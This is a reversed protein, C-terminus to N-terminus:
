CPNDKPYPSSWDFHNYFWRFRREETETMQAEIDGLISEVIEQKAAMVPVTNHNEAEEHVDELIHMLYHFKEETLTLTM